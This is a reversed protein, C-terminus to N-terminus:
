DKTILLHSFALCNVKKALFSVFTKINSSLCEMMHAFISESTAPFCYSTLVQFSKWCMSSRPFHVLNRTAAPKHSIEMVSATSMSM